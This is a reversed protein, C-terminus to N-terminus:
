FRTSYFPDNIVIHGDSGLMFNGPHLDLRYGYKDAIKELENITKILKLLEQKGGLLVILQALDDQNDLRRGFIKDIADTGTFNRAVGVVSVLIEGLWLPLEFLRETRIQLGEDHGDISRPLKFRQWGGFQPLFPNNPNAQCYNAFIVFSNKGSTTILKLVTGDPALWAEAEVGSGLKKYGKSSLISAISLRHSVLAKLTGTNSGETIFENARM